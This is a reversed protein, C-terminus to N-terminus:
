KEMDKLIRIRYAGPATFGDDFEIVAIKKEEKVESGSNIVDWLEVRILQDTEESYHESRLQWM